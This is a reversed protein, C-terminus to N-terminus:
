PTLEEHRGVSADIDHETACEIGRDDVGAASAEGCVTSWGPDRGIAPARATPQASLDDINQASAM